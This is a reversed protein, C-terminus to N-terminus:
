SQGLHIKCVKIKDAVDDDGLRHAEEFCRLADQWRWLGGFAVGKGVWVEARLPDIEIVHDYCAIADKFRGQELLDVGKIYWVEADDSEADPPKEYSGKGQANKCVKIADAVGDHGLRQAEELCLLAEEFRELNMFAAGKLLRVDADRPDIELARDSCAIVEEYQKLQVLAAGKLAWAEEYRPNIELARDICEIAEENRGMEHLALGKLVWVDEYHPNIELARDYYAIAKKFRRLGGLEAGRNSWAVADEPDAGPPLEVSPKKRFLNLFGDFM